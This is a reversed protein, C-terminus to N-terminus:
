CLVRMNISHHTRKIIELTENIMVEAHQRNEIITTSDTIYSTHFLPHRNKSLYTYIEGVALETIPCDITKNHNLNCKNIDLYYDKTNKDRTFINFEKKIEIGNDLLIKKLYGELTRLAPYAFSSYDDLEIDLKKLVFSPSLVKRLTEGLFDYSDELQEKMEDDIEAAELSVNYAQSHSKIVEEFGMCDSLFSIVEYYIYLPKGQILIKDKCNYYTLTLEDNFEVSKFKYRHGYSVSASELVNVNLEDIYDILLNYKEENIDDLSLSVSKRDDKVGNTKIYKAIENSIDQNTGVKYVISVTGDGNKYFSLKAIKSDVTVNISYQIPNKKHPELEGVEYKDGYNEICYKKILEELDTFKINLSRFEKSM